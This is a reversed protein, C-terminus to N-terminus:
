ILSGSKKKFVRMTGKTVLNVGSAAPRNQYSYEVSEYTATWDEKLDAMTESPDVSLKYNKLRVNEFKIALTVPANVSRHFLTLIARPMVDGAKMSNLLQTTAADVNKKFTFKLKEDDTDEGKGKKEKRKKDAEAKDDNEVRSTLQGMLKRIEKDKRAQDWGPKPLKIKHIESVKQALKKADASDFEKAAGAGGGDDDAELAQKAKDRAANRAVFEENELTWSWEDIEIQENFPIPVAEGVVPVFSPRLILLYAEAVSNPM